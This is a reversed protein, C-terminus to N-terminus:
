LATVRAELETTEIIKQYTELMITLGQGEGPTIKGQAVAELIAALAQSYQM